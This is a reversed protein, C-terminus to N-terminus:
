KVRGNLYKVAEVFDMSLTKQVFDIADGHEQCGFCKFKNDGFVFFSGSSEEHFPCCAQFRRGIQRPKVWSFLGEIGVARAFDVMHANIQNEARTEGEKLPQVAGYAACLSELRDLCVLEHSPAQGYLWGLGIERAVLDDQLATKVAVVRDFFWRTQRRLRNRERRATQIEDPFAELIVSLPLPKLAARARRENELQDQIDLVIDIM